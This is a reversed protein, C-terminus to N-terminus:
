MRLVMVSLRKAPALLRMPQSRGAQHSLRAPIIETVPYHLEHDTGAFPPERIFSSSHTPFQHSSNSSRHTSQPKTHRRTSSTSSPPPLSFASILRLLLVVAALGVVHIDEERRDGVLADHWTELSRATHGLLMGMDLTKGRVARWGAVRFAHFAQLGYGSPPQQYPLM